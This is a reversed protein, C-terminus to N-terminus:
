SSKSDYNFLYYDLVRVIMFLYINVLQSNKSGYISLLYDLVRVTM